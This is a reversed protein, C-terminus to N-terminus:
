GEEGTPWTLYSRCCGLSSSRSPYSNLCGQSGSFMFKPLSKLSPHSRRTRVPSILSSASHASSVAAAALAGTCIGVSVSNRESPYEQCGKSVRGLFLGLQAICTLAQLLATNLTGRRYLLVLDALSTFQPCQERQHAPLRRVEHQLVDRSRSLFDLLLADDHAQTLTLLTDAVDYTQDGFVYVTLRNDPFSSPM